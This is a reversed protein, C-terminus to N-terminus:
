FLRFFLESAKINATVDPMTYLDNAIPPLVNVFVIAIIGARPPELLIGGASNLRLSFASFELNSNHM